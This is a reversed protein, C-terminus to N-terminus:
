KGTRRIIKGRSQFGYYSGKDLTTNQCILFFDKEGVYALRESGLHELVVM